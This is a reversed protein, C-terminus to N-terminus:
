LEDESDVPKKKRWLGIFVKEGDLRFFAPFKVVDCARIQDFLELLSRNPDIESDSPKRRNPFTTAFTENQPVAPIGEDLRRIAEIIINPELAYVKRQLSKLTDFRSLQISEQVLIDGQDAGEELLHVTTGSERENNMLIYAGTTPGRYKPLLTPHINIAIRHRTYIERPVLYPFGVSLLNADRYPNLDSALTARSSEGVSVGSKRISNVAAELKESRIEPVIVAAITVGESVMRHIVAERGAGGFLVVWPQNSYKM